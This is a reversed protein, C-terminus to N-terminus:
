MYEGECELRKAVRLLFLGAALNFPPASTIGLKGFWGFGRGTARWIIDAPVEQLRLVAVARLARPTGNVAAWVQALVFTFWISGTRRLLPLDETDRGPAFIRMTLGPAFLAFGGLFVDLIALGACLFRASKSEDIM